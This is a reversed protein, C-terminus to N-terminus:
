RSEYCAFTCTGSESDREIVYWKCGAKKAARITEPITEKSCPASNSKNNVWGDFISLLTCGPCALLVVALIANKM